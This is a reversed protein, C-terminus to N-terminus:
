KANKLAERIQNVHAARIPKGAALDDTWGGYATQHCQQYIKDVADRMELFDAARIAAGKSLTESATGGRTSGWAFNSGYADNYITDIDKRLDSIYSASIPDKVNLDSGRILANPPTKTCTTLVSCNPNAFSGSLTGNFCNRSESVSSCLSGFPVTSASYATISSGSAVSTGGLSCAAPANVTISGDKWASIGGKSDHSRVKFPYTGASAWTRSASESTGSAVSPLSQNM